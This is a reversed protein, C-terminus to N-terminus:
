AQEKAEVDVFEIGNLREMIRVLQGPNRSEFCGRCVVPNGAITGKHCEFHTDKKACDRIIQTARANSVIRNSTYLCQDCKEKAVKLKGM